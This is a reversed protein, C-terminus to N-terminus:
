VQPAEGPTSPAGSICRAWVRLTAYLLALVVAAVLPTALVLHHSGGLVRTSGTLRSVLLITLVVTALIGLAITFQQAVVRWRERSSRGRATLYAERLPMVLALVLYFLGGLGTGPLGANM